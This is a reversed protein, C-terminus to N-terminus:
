WTLGYGGGWVRGVQGGPNASQGVLDDEPCGLDTQITEWDDSTPSIREAVYDGVVV